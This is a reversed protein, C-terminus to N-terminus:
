FFIILGYTDYFPPQFKHFFDTYKKNKKKNNDVKYAGTTETVAQSSIDYLFYNM